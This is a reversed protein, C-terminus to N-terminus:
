GYDILPGGGGEGEGEGEGPPKEPAGEKKFQQMLKLVEFGMLPASIHQLLTHTHMPSYELVRRVLEMAFITQLNLVRGEEIVLVYATNM